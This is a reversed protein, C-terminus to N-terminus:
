ATAFNPRLDEGAFARPLATATVQRYIPAFTRCVTGFRALQVAATAKEEMGPTLDSNLGSDRSVTPYVYFCDVKAAEDARVQGTSGYGNTNLATTPLPAACPDARGPLCLWTSEHSYNILRVGGDVSFEGANKGTQAEVPMAALLAAVAAIRILKM